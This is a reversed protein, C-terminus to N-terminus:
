QTDNPTRPPTGTMCIRKLERALADVEKGCGESGVGSEGESESSTRKRMAAHPQARPQSPRQKPHLPPTSMTTTAPTNTTNGSLVNEDIEEEEEEEEEKGEEEVAGASRAKAAHYKAKYKRMRKEAKERKRTEAALLRDHKETAQNLERQAEALQTRTSELLVRAELPM